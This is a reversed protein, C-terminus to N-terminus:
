QLSWLVERTVADTIKLTGPNLAAHENWDDREFATIPYFMEARHFIVIRNLEGYKARIEDDTLESM